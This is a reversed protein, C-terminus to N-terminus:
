DLYSGDDDEGDETSSEFDDDPPLDDVGSESGADSEERKEWASAVNAMTWAGSGIDWEECLEQTTPPAGFGVAPVLVVRYERELQDRIQHATLDVTGTHQLNQLISHMKSVAEPDGSAMARRRAVYFAMRVKIYQHPTLSYHYEFETEDTHIQFTSAFPSVHYDRDYSDKKSLYWIQRWLAPTRVFGPEPVPCGIFEAPELDNSTATILGPDFKTSRSGCLKKHDRWDRDQCAKSCYCVAKCGSCRKLTVPFKETSRVGCAFCNPTLDDDMQETSIKMAPKGAYAELIGILAQVIFHNRQLLRLHGVARLDDPASESAFLDFEQEVAPHHFLYLSHIRFTAAPLFKHIYFIEALFKEEPSLQCVFFVWSVTPNEEITM